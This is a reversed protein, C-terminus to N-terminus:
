GDGRKHLFHVRGLCAAAGAAARREANDDADANPTDSDISGLLHNRLFCSWGLQLVITILILIM